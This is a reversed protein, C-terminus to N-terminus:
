KGRETGSFKLVALYFGPKDVFEVMEFSNDAVYNKLTMEDPLGSTVVDPFQRRQQELVERGQQHSIM